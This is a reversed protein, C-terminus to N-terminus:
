GNAPNKQRIWDTWAQKDNIRNLEFEEALDFWRANAGEPVKQGAILFRLQPCQEVEALLQAEIWELLERTETIKEYTDLLMLVPSSLQRLAELLTWPDPEKAAAFAPLVAGLDLRLRKLVNPQHLFQTDKFDVYATPVQLIKAYRFASNLLASKGYGSPGKFILIRKAANATMLTQIGPWERARDALGPEYPTPENPWPPRGPSPRAVQREPAVLHLRNLILEVTKDLSRERLRVDPVISTFKPIGKVDGDGVRIPLVGLRGKDSDSALSRNVRDRIAAHEALTWPKGGYRESVCVGRCRLRRLLYETVRYRRLGRRHLCAGCNKNAYFPAISIPTLVVSVPM